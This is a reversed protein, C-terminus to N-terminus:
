VDKIRVKLEFFICDKNLLALSFNPIPMNSKILMLLLARARAVIIHPAPWPEDVCRRDREQNYDEAAARLQIPRDGM